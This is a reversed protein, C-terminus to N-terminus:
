NIKMEEQNSYGILTKGTSKSIERIKPINSLFVIMQIRKALDEM